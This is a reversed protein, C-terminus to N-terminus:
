LSRVTNCTLCVVQSKLDGSFAASIPSSYRLGKRGKVGWVRRSPAAGDAATAHAGSPTAGPSADHASGSAASSTIGNTLRKGSSSAGTEGGPVNGHGLRGFGLISRGHSRSVPAAPATPVAQTATATVSPTAAAVVAAPTGTPPAPALGAGHDQLSGDVQRQMKDHLRDLLFRLFEHADQQAYGRFVASESRVERLLQTPAVGGSYCACLSGVGCGAEGSAVTSAMRSSTKAVPQRPQGAAM